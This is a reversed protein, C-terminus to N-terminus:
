FILTGSKVPPTFFVKFPQDYAQGGAELRSLPVTFNAELPSGCGGPCFDLADGVEYNATIDISYYGHGILPLEHKTIHVEGDVIKRYDLGAASSSIGGAINGARTALNSYNIARSNLIPASIFTSLPEIHTVGSTLSSPSFSTSYFNTKVRQMIKDLDWSTFWSDAFSDVIDGSRFIRPTLGSAPTRRLYDRWLDHVDSGFTANMLPLLTVMLWAEANIAERTTPYPTCYDSDSCSNEDQKQVVGEQGKQQITHTLEHALLHKGALSEPNYKGKNFYIDHGNTFAQAHMSKTMSQAYDGTHIRVKSFNNGFAGEMQGKVKPALANGKGRYNSLQSQVSSNVQSEAGGKKTQVAEEEEQKQVKEEGCKKCKAQVEEEQKQMPEEEEMSQVSEEEEQKQMPEEEEMSQVSEEEEQKQMPEEEKSEVKQIFPSISSAMSKTQLDKEEGEQKQVNTTEATKSVVEDAKADAEKEFSDGPKGVNLKTQVAPFFGDAKAGESKPEFLSNQNPKKKRRVKNKSFM